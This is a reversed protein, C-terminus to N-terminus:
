GLNALRLIDRAIALAADPRGLARAAQGMAELREDQDLLPLLAGPLEAPARDNPVIEAAGVRALRQANALQDPNITLPVFIAAKGAAALESVTTAGSRAMVLDAAAVAAPMQECFGLIRYRGGSSEFVADSREVAGALRAVDGVEHAGAIHLISWRPNALVADRVAAFASNLSRAGLSGGTVLLLRDTVPYGLQQRAEDRSLQGFGPRIPNGLCVARGAPFFRETGEFAVAIRNALKGLLRNALGPHGNAEAVYIPIGAWRAALLAPASVYAGCGVVALPALEEMLRRAKRVGQALLWAFRLSDFGPRRPLGIAEIPWFPYGAEPVIRAELHDPTGVFALQLDPHLAKLQDAIALAPFLHGGTGGAALLITAM